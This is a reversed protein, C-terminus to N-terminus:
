HSPLHKPGLHYHERHVVSDSTEELPDQAARRGVHPTFIHTYRLTYDFPHLLRLLRNSYVARHRHDKRWHQVLGFNRWSPNRWRRSAVHLLCRRRDCLDQHALQGPYFIFTRGRTDTHAERSDYLYVRCLSCPRCPNPHSSHHLWRHRYRRLAVLHARLLRCNSSYYLRTNSDLVGFTLLGIDCSVSAALPLPSSILPM